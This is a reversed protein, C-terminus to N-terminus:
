QLMDHRRKTSPEESKIFITFKNCFTTHKKCFYGMVKLFM